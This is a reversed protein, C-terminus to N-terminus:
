RREQEMLIGPAYEKVFSMVYSTDPFVATFRVENILSNSLLPDAGEFLFQHEVTSMNFTDAIPGQKRTINGDNFIYTISKQDDTFQIEYESSLRMYPFSNIDQELLSRFLVVDMAKHNISRFERFQGTIVTYCFYSATIVIGSIAMSVLVEILTFAKLKNM